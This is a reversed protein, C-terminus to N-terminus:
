ISQFECCYHVGSQTYVTAPFFGILHSFVLGQVLNQAMSLQTVQNKKHNTMVAYCLGEWPKKLQQNPDSYFDTLMASFFAKFNTFIGFKLTIQQFSAFKLIFLEAFDGFKVPM